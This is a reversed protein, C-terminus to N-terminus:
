DFITKPDIGIANENIQDILIECNTAVHRLKKNDEWIVFNPQLTCIAVNTFVRKEEGSFKISVNYRGSFDLCAM